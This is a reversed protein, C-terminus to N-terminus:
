TKAIKTQQGQSANSAQQWTGQGQSSGSARGPRPQTKLEASGQPAVQHKSRLTAASGGKTTGAPPATICRPALLSM